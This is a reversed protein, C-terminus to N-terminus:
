FKTRRVDSCRLVAQERGQCAESPGGLTEAGESSRAQVKAAAISVSRQQKAQSSLRDFACKLLGVLLDFGENDFRNQLLVYRREVDRGVVNPVHCQLCRKELRRLAALMVIKQEDTQVHKDASAGTKGVDCGPTPPFRSEYARRRDMGEQISKGDYNYHPVVLRLANNVRYEAGHLKNFIATKAPTYAGMPKVAPVPSTPAVPAVDSTQLITKKAMWGPPAFNTKDVQKTQVCDAVENVVVTPADNGLDDIAFIPQFGEVEDFTESLANERLERIGAPIPDQRSTYFPLPKDWTKVDVPVGSAPFDVAAGVSPLFDQPLYPVTVDNEESTKNEILALKNPRGSDFTSGGSQSASIRMFPSDCPMSPSVALIPEQTTYHVVVGPEQDLGLDLVDPGLHDPLLPVIPSTLSKNMLADGLDAPLAIM